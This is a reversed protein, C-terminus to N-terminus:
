VIWDFNALEFGLVEENKEQKINKKKHKGKKKRCPLHHGSYTHEKKKCCVVWMYDGGSCPCVVVADLLPPPTCYPVSSTAHITKPLIM